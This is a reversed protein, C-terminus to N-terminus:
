ILLSIFFYTFFYEYRTKDYINKASSVITSILLGLKSSISRRILFLCLINTKHLFKYSRKEFFITQCFAKPKNCTKGGKAGQELSATIENRAFLDNAVNKLLILSM